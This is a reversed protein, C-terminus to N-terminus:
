STLTFPMQSKTATTAPATTPTPTALHLSAGAPDEVAPDEVAGEGAIGSMRERAIGSM